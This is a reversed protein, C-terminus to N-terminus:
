KQAAVCCYCQQTIDPTELWHHYVHLGNAECLHILGDPLFRWYDKPHKHMPWCAVTTCILLGGTRLIRAAEKFALFPNAIHELTDCLLAVGYTESPVQPMNTLDAIINPVDKEIVAIDLTVYGQPPFLPRYLKHFGGCGLDIVPTSWEKMKISDRVFDRSKNTGM